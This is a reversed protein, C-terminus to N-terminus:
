ENNRRVVVTVVNQGDKREYTMDDALSRVLHVGLGGLPRDEISADLSPEAVDTLPDFKPGTDRLVFTVADGTCILDAEFFTETSAAGHSLLNLCLEEVFLRVNSEVDPSWAEMSSLLTVADDIMKWQNEVYDIRFSLQNLPM